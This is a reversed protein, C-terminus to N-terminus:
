TQEQILTHRVRDTLGKFLGAVVNDVSILNQHGAIRILLDTHVSLDIVANQNRDVAVHSLECLRVPNGIRTERRQAEDLQHATLNFRRPADSLRHRQEFVFPLSRRTTLPAQM